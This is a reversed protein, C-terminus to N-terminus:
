RLLVGLLNMIRFRTCKKQIETTNMNLVSTKSAVGEIQVERKDSGITHRAHPESLRPGVTCTFPKFNSEM